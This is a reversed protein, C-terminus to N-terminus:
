ADRPGIGLEELAGLLGAVDDDTHAASLAIRLRAMGAPVSPPRIAPVLYGRELLLESLKLAREEDGAMIPIIPSSNRPAVRDVLERLRGRLRTGEDSRFIRLAALGAAADAPTGATTFIFPRAENTLLDIFGTDAAVFGGAAGLFKSLTGVKIREVDDRPTTEPGLVAHAEDLILLADHAACLENLEDVPAADGDMSFISDSVVVCRRPGALLEDLASMDKHPYVAVGADAMRCGDIISAHNLEDSCILLDESGLATLLSLNAAYGNPFLLAKEKEKWAALEAELESHVPRSGVILRASGAGSGWRDLAQHAAAIVGPHASLGLYDNSAFSVV